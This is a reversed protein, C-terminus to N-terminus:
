AAPLLSEPKIANGRGGVSVILDNKVSQLSYRYLSGTHMQQFGARRQHKPIERGVTSLLQDDRLPLQSPPVGM